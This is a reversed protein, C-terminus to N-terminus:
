NKLIRFLNSYRDTWPVDMSIDGQMPVSFRAIARLFDENRTLLMWDSGFVLRSDDDNSSIKECKLGYHAGAARVVPTLDLYRNTIHVAIVGGERLHSLYLAFAEITLLHAPIADSSFADLVLITYDQAPEAELSLRGDGQIVECGSGCHDLYTFYKRALTEVQPNLEYFRYVDEGRAYTALTGVGLGIIGVRVPGLDKFFGIARGVGSEENYYTTAIHRKLPSAFQQGHIIAGHKMSFEHLGADGRGFELVQVVGYFSRTRAVVDAAVRDGESYVVSVLGALVAPVIMVARAPRVGGAGHALAAILVAASILYSVTLGIEWELYSTFLVPAMVSVFLGGLAGGAATMLYFDTLHRSSPRARVLEGHCVMCIFFLAALHLGLERAFGIAYGWDDFWDICAVAVISVGALPAWVARLYWRDHDFCIIFSVLYLTLPVVWLFPVVAIEQCVRNTTALLMLSGCAPLGIWLIRDRCSPPSSDKMGSGHHDAEVGDPNGTGRLGISALLSLLAYLVFFGSWLWSQADLELAPEFLFPYSILAALSGVNSLAYLRYPSRGPYARSVWAQVLPSTSALMFYPLGITVALLVLIRLSPDVPGSHKWSDDPIAPLTACALALLLLHVFVQKKSLLSRQLLHAYLYGCFLLVQFFLMCTTWVAPSGGFWPLIYRSILPQVQFLLFAGLFVTGALAPVLWAAKGSGTLRNVEVRVGGWRQM